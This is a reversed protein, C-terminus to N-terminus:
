SIKAARGPKVGWKEGFAVGASATPKVAGRGALQFLKKGGHNALSLTMDLRGPLFVGADDGIARLEAFTFAVPGYMSYHYAACLEAHDSPKPKEGGNLHWLDVVGEAKTTPQKDRQNLAADPATEEGLLTMAAQITRRRTCSNEKSLLNVIKQALEGAKAPDAPTTNKM